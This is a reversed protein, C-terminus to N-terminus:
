GKCIAIFQLSGGIEVTVAAWIVHRVVGAGAL